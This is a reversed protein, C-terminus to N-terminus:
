EGCRKVFAHYDGENLESIRAAGFEKLLATGAPIGHAVTYDQLAARVDDVSPPNDNDTAEDAPEAPAEAEVEAKAKRGRKKPATESVPSADSLSNAAIVEGTKEGADGEDSTMFSAASGANKAVVPKAVYEPDSVPYTSSIELITGVLRKEHPIFPDFTIQM